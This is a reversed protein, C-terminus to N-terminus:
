AKGPGRRGSRNNGRRRRRRRQRGEGRCGPMSLRPQPLEDALLAALVDPLDGSVWPIVELGAAICLDMVPRSIAGCVLLDAREAVIRRAKLLALEDEFWLERRNVEVNNDLAVLIFRRASDFVPSVREGWVPIAIQMITTRKPPLSADPTGPHPNKYGITLIRSESKSDNTSM